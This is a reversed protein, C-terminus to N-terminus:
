CSTGVRSLENPGYSGIDGIYGYAFVYFYLVHCVTSYLTAPPSTIARSPRQTLMDRILTEALHVQSPKGVITVLKEGVANVKDNHVVITTQSQEELLKITQGGVGIIV